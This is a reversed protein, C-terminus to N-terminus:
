VEEANVKDYEEHTGAFRVFGMEARMDFKVIL